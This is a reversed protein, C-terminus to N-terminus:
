SKSRLAAQEADSLGYLVFAARNCAALDGRTAASVLERRVQPPVDSWRPIRIRRLYQAQFRLFGGRMRTSYTAVFLSAVASLLVAQLARLDWEDATIYYLNHHPYYRGEEYVIHAQGKIDPVLLKPRTTLSPTIRDITRYWNAPTKQACHRGAIVDKRAELYRKLRPYQDLHVLGGGEAFPNVVGFGRWEVTGNQIDRTMVLPQKRDEEVDLVHFPGIFANDAGTAVGIGVKCGVEELAPHEYELRRVLALQDSAALVWPESGAAVGVLERVAGFGASPLHATLQTALASLHVSDIKPRDALRTAGPSERTIVTIAPYAIVDSHFARTDTMDVHVKLHFESAVLARLPGGYRNKMWRDACIFGLAGRKRLLRLSHEIFPIYLDARDYVTTYRSRYEALLVAPIMEQRVYPPNGIVVDFTAPLDTLLFDGHLLWRDAISQASRAAIGAGTLRAIVAAYTREFTDRHLEVARISDGLAQLPSASRGSNQWARLLRDIVPLLFDGAGFSPELLTLAHLPRDCTYGCLDLIFDVVEPRTYIAGREEVGGAHALEEVAATIPCLDPFSPQRLQLNVTM